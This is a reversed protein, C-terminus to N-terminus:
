YYTIHQVRQLTSSFSSASSDLDWAFVDQQNSEPQRYKQASHSSMWSPRGEPRYGDEAAPNDHDGYVTNMLTNRAEKLRSLSSVKRSVFVVWYCLRFNNIGYSM